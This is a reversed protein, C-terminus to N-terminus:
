ASSIALQLIFDLLAYANTILLSSGMRANLVNQLHTKVFWVTVTAFSVPWLIIKYNFLAVKLAFVHGMELMLLRFDARLVVQQVQVVKVDKVVLKANDRLLKM